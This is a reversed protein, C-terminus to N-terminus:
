DKRKKGTVELFPFIIGFIIAFRFAVEWDLVTTGHAILNYLYSVALTVPFVIGFIIAFDRLFRWIKMM